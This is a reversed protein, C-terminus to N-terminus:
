LGLRLKLEGEMSKALMACFWGLAALFILFAALGMGVLLGHWEGLGSWTKVGNVSALFPPGSKVLVLGLLLISALYFVGMSFFLVWHPMRRWPRAPDPAAGLSQTDSKKDPSM